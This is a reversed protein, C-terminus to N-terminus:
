IGAVFGLSVGTISEDDSIKILDFQSILEISETVPYNVGFLSQHIISNMIVM